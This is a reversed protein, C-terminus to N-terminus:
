LTRGFMKQGEKNRKIGEGVKGKEKSWVLETRIYKLIGDRTLQGFVIFHNWTIEMITDFRRFIPDFVKWLSIADLSKGPPGTTFLRGELAPSMPSIGPRPVLIGCAAPCSLGHAVVVSNAHRLSLARTGCVVSGVCGPARVGCSSLLGRAAVFLRHAARFIGCAAVLVQRLGFFFFCFQYCGFYRMGVM